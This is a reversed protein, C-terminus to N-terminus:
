RRNIQELRELNVVTSLTLRDQSWDGPNRVSSAALIVGAALVTSLSILLLRGSGRSRSETLALIRQELAKRANAGPTLFAVNFTQAQTSASRAQGCFQLLCNAYQSPTISLRRLVSQDCNFERIQGFRHKWIHYVPNFYLIPRMFEFALEWEVDGRRLHEFEHAVVIKLDPPSTLLVSPVVVHRRQIGRTAFPVSITDSFRIDTRATHRWIYSQSVIRRIRLLTLTIRLLLVISGAALAIAMASLFPMKGAFFADLTGKRANLLAEFQLAPMAIEGRLYAAVALDSFTVPLDPWFYQSSIVVGFSMAPSLVVLVLVVRLLSLRFEYDTKLATKGMAIETLWWFCFALVLVINADIVLDLVPQMATM